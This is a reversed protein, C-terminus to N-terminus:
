DARQRPARSLLLFRTVIYTLPIMVAAILLPVLLTNVRMVDHLLEFLAFSAAAQILYVLPFHLFGRISMPTEFVWKCNIVYSWAIGAVYAVAYAIVAPWDIHLLAAYLAYSFLTTSGGAILFRIKERSM